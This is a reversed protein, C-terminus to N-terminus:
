GELRIKSSLRELVSWCLFHCRLGTDNKTRPWINMVRKLLTLKNRKHQVDKHIVGFLGAGIIELASQMCQLEEFDQQM